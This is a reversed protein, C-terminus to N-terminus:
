KRKKVPPQPIGEEDEEDKDEEEKEEGDDNDDEDEDVGLSSIFLRFDRERM